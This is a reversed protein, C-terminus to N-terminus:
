IPLDMAICPTTICARFRGISLKGSTAYPRGASGGKIGTMMMIVQNLCMVCIKPWNAAIMTGCRLCRRDNSTHLCWQMPSRPWVHSVAADLGSLRDAVVLGVQKLGRAHLSAFLDRWGMASESPLSEIAIVERSGDQNVALIVYFAENQVTDRRVKVHLCDVYLAPYRAELPSNCWQEVDDRM